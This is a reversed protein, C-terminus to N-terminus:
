ELTQVTESGDVWKFTTTKKSNDVKLVYECGFLNFKGDKLEFDKSTGNEWHVTWKGDSVKYVKDEKKDPKSAKSEDKSKSSSDIQEDKDNSEEAEKEKQEKEAKEKEEKEAKEKEEKEAKEKEDQKKKKVEEGVKKEYKLSLELKTENIWQRM